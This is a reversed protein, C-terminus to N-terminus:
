VQLPPYGNDSISVTISHKETTEFNMKSTAKYLNGSSDVGFAGDDNNTLVYTLMQGLRYSAFSKNMFYILM